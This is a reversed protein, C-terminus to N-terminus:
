VLIMGGDIMMVQGTMYDSDGSALYLATGVIDDETAVRGRIIDSAFNEMAEGPKNSDGISILDADLQKWLPTAVVGPAFANVTIDYQALERASAQTLSIVAAKSACYPAINGYGQRGAMSATNIIKGTGGQAIIQKAAEQTGILVGLANVDMIARWNEETVDLLHQPKNFGANNFWIDLRGFAEVAKTVAATVEARNVVNAKAAVAKGGAETIAAVASKAAELNLDVILLNAGEAALAKAFALGM